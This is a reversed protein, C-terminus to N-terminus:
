SKNKEDERALASLIFFLPPIIRISINIIKNQKQYIYIYIYIYIYMYTIYLRYYM